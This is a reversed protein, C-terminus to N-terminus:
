KEFDCDQCRSLLPKNLVEFTLRCLQSSEKLIKCSARTLYKPYYFKSKSFYKTKMSFFISM